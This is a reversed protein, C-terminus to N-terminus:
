LIVAPMERDTQEEEIRKFEGRMKCHFIGESVQNQQNQTGKKLDPRKTTLESQLLGKPPLHNQYFPTLCHYVNQLRHQHSFYLLRIKIIQETVKQLLFLNFRNFQCQVKRKILWKLSSKVSEQTRMCIKVVKIFLFTKLYFIFLKFLFPSCIFCPNGLVQKPPILTTFVTTKRPGKM